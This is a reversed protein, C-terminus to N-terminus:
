LHAGSRCLQNFQAQALGLQADFYNTEDTLVELYRAAGGQYRTESFNHQTKRRSRWNSSPLTRGRL